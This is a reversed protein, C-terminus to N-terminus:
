CSLWSQTSQAAEWYRLEHPFAQPIGSECETGQGGSVPGKDPLLSLEPESLTEPSGRFGPFWTKIKARYTRGAPGRFAVYGKHNLKKMQVFHALYSEWFGEPWPVLISTHGRLICSSYSSSDGLWHTRWQKYLLFWLQGGSVTHPALVEGIVFVEEWVVAQLGLSSSTLFLQSTSRWSERM